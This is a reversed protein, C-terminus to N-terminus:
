ARAAARARSVTRPARLHGPPPPTSAVSTCQSVDLAMTDGEGGGGHLVM